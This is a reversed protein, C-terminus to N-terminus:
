TTRTHTISLILTASVNAIDYKCRTQKYAQLTRSTQLTSFGLQTNCSLMHVTRGGEKKRAWEVSCAAWETIDVYEHKLLEIRRSKENDATCKRQVHDKTHSMHIIHLTYQTNDWIIAIIYRTNSFTNKIIDQNIMNEHEYLLRQLVRKWQMDKIFKLSHANYNSSNQQM